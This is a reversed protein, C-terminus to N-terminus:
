IKWFGQSGAHLDLFSVFILSRAERISPSDFREGKHVTPTSKWDRHDVISVQTLLDHTISLPIKREHDVPGM